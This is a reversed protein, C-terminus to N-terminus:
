IKRAKAKMPEAERTTKSLIWAEAEAAWEERATEGYPNRGLGTSALEERAFDTWLLGGRPMGLAERTSANATLNIAFKVLRPPADESLRAVSSVLEMVKRQMFVGLESIGDGDLEADEFGIAEAVASGLDSDAAAEVASFDTAEAAFSEVRDVASGSVAGGGVSVLLTKHITAKAAREIEEKMWKHAEERTM